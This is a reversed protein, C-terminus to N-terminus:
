IVSTYNFPKIANWRWGDADVANTKDAPKFAPVDRHDLLGPHHQGCTMAPGATAIQMKGAQLHGASPCRM